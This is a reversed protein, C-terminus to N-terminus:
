SGGSPWEFGAQDPSTGTGTLETDPAKVRYAVELLPLSILRPGGSDDIVFTITAEEIALREYTAGDLAVLRRMLVRATYRGDSEVDVSATRVWEVYSVVGPAVGPQLEEGIAVGGALGVRQAWDDAPDLSYFELVVWEARTAVSREIGGVDAARLDAESLVDPVAPAPLSEVPDSMISPPENIAVVPNMVPPATPLSRSVISVVAILALVAAVAYWLRRRDPPPSVTLQDWPIHEAVHDDVTPPASM